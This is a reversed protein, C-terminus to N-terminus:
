RGGTRALAGDSDEEEAVAPVPLRVTVVTGQGVQSSIQVGAEAGYLGRLRHHVNYLALGSGSQSSAPQELLQALRSPTIGQGNDSVTIVVSGNRVAKLHIQGGRRIRQLGHSIANEVLPQLTLPPIPTQLVDPAVEYTVTLREGYRAQEVTLYHKVHELEQRLSVTECQTSHLNRRLFDGLHGVVERAREPERRILATVTNLANFLFHPQIQAQLARIEAKDLLAANHAARALALQTSFHYALGEALEVPARSRQPNYYLKLTGVPRQQEQLPVIVVAQLPCNPQACEIQARGEALVLRNQAIAQRTANTLLPEGARHHESGVGVHALIRETDTIAAATVATEARIVAAAAQASELTLGTRLFPLTRTAIRLANKAADGEVAAEHTLIARCVLQFLAVGASNAVIMPVAILRVLSIADDVPRAIAIILAMQMIELLFAFLLSAWTPLNLWGRRSFREGIFGAILGQSFTAIGCALGTFGGLLFRHGGALLGAVMGTTRGGMLGAVIVAVARSNAIAEEPSIPGAVLHRWDVGDPGVLVGTYTGLVGFLGFLLGLRIREQLGSNGLLLSRFIHLRTAIFALGVLLGIREVLMILLQSPM